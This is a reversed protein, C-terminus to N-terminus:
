AKGEVIAIEKARAYKTPTVSQGTVIQKQAM